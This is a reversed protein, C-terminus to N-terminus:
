LDQLPRAPRVEHKREMVRVLEARPHEGSNRFRRSQFGVVKSSLAESSRSCFITDWPKAATPNSFSDTRRRLFTTRGRGIGGGGGGAAGSGHDGQRRREQSGNRTRSVDYSCAHAHIIIPHTRRDFHFVLM